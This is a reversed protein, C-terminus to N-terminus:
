PIMASMRQFPSSQPARVDFTAVKQSIIAGIRKMDMHVIGSVMVFMVFTSAITNGVNLIGNPVPYKKVTRLTKIVSEM